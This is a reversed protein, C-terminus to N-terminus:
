SFFKTPSLTLKYYGTEPSKSFGLLFSVLSVHTERRQGQKTNQPCPVPLTEEPAGRASGQCGFSKCSWESDGSDSDAAM